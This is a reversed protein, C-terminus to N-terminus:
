LCEYPPELKPNKPPSFIPNRSTAKWFVWSKFRSFPVTNGVEDLGPALGIRDPGPSKKSAREIDSQDVFTYEWTALWKRKLLDLINDLFINCELLM